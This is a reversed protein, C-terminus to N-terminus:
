MQQKVFTKASEPDMFGPMSPRGYMDIQGMPAGPTWVGGVFMMSQAYEDPGFQNNARSSEIPYSDTRGFRVYRNRGGGRFGGMGRGRGWSPRYPRRSGNVINKDASNSDQKTEGNEDPKENQSNEDNVEEGNLKAEQAAKEAKEREKREIVQQRWKFFWPPPHRIRTAPRRWGGRYNNGGSRNSGNPHTMNNQNGNNNRAHPPNSNSQNVETSSDERNETKSDSPTSRKRGITLRHSRSARSILSAKSVPQLTQGPELKARIKTSSQPQEPRHRQAEDLTPWDQSILEKAVKVAKEPENVVPEEQVTFFLLEHPVISFFKCVQNLNSNKNLNSGFM